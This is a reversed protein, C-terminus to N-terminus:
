SGLAKICPLLCYRSGSIVQKSIGAWGSLELNPQPCISDVGIPGSCFYEIKVTQPFLYARASKPPEFYTLPLVGFTRLWCIAFGGQATLEHALFGGVLLRQSWTEPFDGMSGPVGGRFVLFSSSDVGEPIWIRLERISRSADGLEGICIYIYIYIYTYM